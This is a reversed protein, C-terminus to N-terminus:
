WSRRPRSATPTLPPDRKVTDGAILDLDPTKWTWVIQLDKFNDRTIQDLASYKQSWNTAGYSPWEGATQARVLGCTLSLALAVIRFSM